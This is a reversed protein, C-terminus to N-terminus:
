CCVNFGPPPAKEIEFFGHTVIKFFNLEFLENKEKMVDAAVM